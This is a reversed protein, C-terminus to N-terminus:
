RFCKGFNSSLWEFFDGRFSVPIDDLNGYGGTKDFYLAGVRGGDVAFFEVGWRLDAAEPRPQVTISKVAEILKPLLVGGRVDRITLKYHFQRALLAPTIRTRTMIEPPIQMIDIQAIQNSVLKEAVADIRSQADNSIKVETAEIPGGLLLIISISAILSFAHYGLPEHM